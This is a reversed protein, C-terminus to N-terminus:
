EYVKTEEVGDLVRVVGEELAKLEDEGPVVFLPALYSVREEVADIIAKDRALGGTIVIRDVQGKLTAGLACIEKSLQYTFANVVKQWEPKNVAEDMILKCDTTGTHAYFGGKGVLMKDIEKKEYKGSFCLNVLQKSPISGAREPSFPGEELANNVDIVRGKHHAGVSIGGGLHAVIFNGEEYTIGMDAAAKKATAKQNLAHFASIRKIEALGTYRAEDILEDVVVPDVIYALKNYKKGLKNAIIAGLNSAHDGYRSDGLHELILQNVEYTGGQLPKLLGGRGVFADVAELDINEEELVNMIFNFRYDLQDAAKEFKRVEEVVHSISKEFVLEGGNFLAIKTSTSGPNIALIVHNM